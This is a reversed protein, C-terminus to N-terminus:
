KRMHLFKNMLFHMMGEGSSIKAWLENVERELKFWCRKLGATYADKPSNKDCLKKCIENRKILPYSYITNM